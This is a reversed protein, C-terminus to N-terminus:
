GFSIQYLEHTRVLAQKKRHLTQHLHLPCHSKLHVYSAAWLVDCKRITQHFIRYSFCKTMILYLCCLKWSSQVIVILVKICSLHIEVLLIQEPRLHCLESLLCKLGSYKEDVNLRLGYRVPTTGDLRIVSLLYLFLFHTLYCLSLWSMSHMVCSVMYSVSTNCM